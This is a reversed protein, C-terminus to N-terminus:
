LDNYDKIQKLIIRNCRAAMFNSYLKELTRGKMETKKYLQVTESVSALSAPFIIKQLKVKRDFGIYMIPQDQYIKRKGEQNMIATPQISRFWKSIDMEGVVGHIDTLDLFPPYTTMKVESDAFFFYEGTFFQLYINQEGEVEIDSHCKMVLKDKAWNIFSPCKFYVDNKFPHTKKLHGLLNEIPTVTAGFTNEMGGYYVTPVKTM